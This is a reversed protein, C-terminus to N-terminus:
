QIKVAQIVHKKVKTDVEVFYTGPPLFTFNLVNNQKLNLSNHSMAVRGQLDIVRISHVLPIMEESLILSTQTFIPNPYLTVRSKDDECSAVVIDSYHIPGDIDIAKVRLYTGNANSLPFKYKGNGKPMVTQIANWTQADDSSEIQYEKLKSESDTQWTLETGSSKCDIQVSTFTVPLAVTNLNFKVESLGYCPGGHNTIATILVYRASTLGLNMLSKSGTYLSSGSGRPITIEGFTTWTTGNTSIDVIARQIGSTLSDPHNFNWVDLTTLPYVYGLDYRIWHSTGRITNPNASPTCSLWADETVTSHRDPTTQAHCIVLCISLLFSSILKFNSHM